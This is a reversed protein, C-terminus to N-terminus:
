RLWREQLQEFTGDFFNGDVNGTLPNVRGTETFQWMFVGPAPIGAGQNSSKVIPENWPYPIQEKPGYEALWLRRQSFFAGAGLMDMDVHGAPPAKLTERILNGSYLACQVNPPSNRDVAQMFTMLMKLSPQSASNEFDAALLFPDAGADTIESADLFHKAQEEPDSGDLFHYAGWLLGAAQAAVKRASYAPDEYHSGQSAKHVIGYVGAEKLAAFDPDTITNGHYMDVVNIRRQTNVFM